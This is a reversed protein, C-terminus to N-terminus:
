KVAGAPVCSGQFLEIVASVNSGPLPRRHRKLAPNPLLYELLSSCLLNLFYLKKLNYLCGQRFSFVPYFLSSGRNDVCENRLGLDEQAIVGPLLWFRSRAPHFFGPWFNVFPHVPRKPYRILAQSGTCIGKFNYGVNRRYRKRCSHLEPATNRSAAVPYGGRAWFLGYGSIGAEPSSGCLAVWSTRKGLSARGHGKAIHRGGGRRGAQEKKSQWGVKRGTSRAPGGTPEVDPWGSRKMWNMKIAM